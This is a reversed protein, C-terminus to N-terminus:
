WKLNNLRNKRKNLNGEIKTNYTYVIKMKHGVPQVIWDQRQAGSAQLKRDCFKYPKHMNIQLNHYNVNHVTSINSYM